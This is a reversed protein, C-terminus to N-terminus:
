RCEQTGRLSAERQSWVSPAHEPCVQHPLQYWVSPPPLPHPLPYQAYTSNAAHEYPVRNGLRLKIALYLLVRNSM